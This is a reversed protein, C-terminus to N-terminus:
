AASAPQRGVATLAGVAVGTVVPRLRGLAANSSFRRGSPLLKVLTVAHSGASLDAVPPAPVTVRVLRNTVDAAPVPLCIDGFCVEVQDAALDGGVLSVTDGAAFSEPEVKDLRPGM